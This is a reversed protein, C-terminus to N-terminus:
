VEKVLSIPADASAQQLFSNHDGKEFTSEELWEAGPIGRGPDSGAVDTAEPFTLRGEAGTAPVGPSFQGGGLSPESSRLARGDDEGEEERSTIPAAFSKLIM